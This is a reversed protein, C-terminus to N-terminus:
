LDPGSSFGYFKEVSRAAKDFNEVPGGKKTAFNDM